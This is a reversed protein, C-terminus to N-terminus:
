NLKIVDVRTGGARQVFVMARGRGMQMLDEERIAEVETIGHALAAANRDENRWYAAQESAMREAGESFARIFRKDIEYPDNFRPFRFATEMTGQLSSVSASWQVPVLSDASVGTERRASAASELQNWDMSHFRMTRGALKKAEDM